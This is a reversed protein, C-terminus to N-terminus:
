CFIFLDSFMVRFSDPSLQFSFTDQSGSHDGPCSSERPGLVDSEGKEAVFNTHMDIFM